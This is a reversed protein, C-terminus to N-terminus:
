LVIFIYYLIFISNGFKWYFFVPKLSFSVFLIGETRSKIQVTRLKNPSNMPVTKTLLMVSSPFLVGILILLEVNGRGSSITELHSLSPQTGGVALQHSPLVLLELVWRFRSFSEIRSGALFPIPIRNRFWISGVFCNKTRLIRFCNCRSVLVM